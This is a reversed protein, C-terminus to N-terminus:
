LIDWTKKNVVGKKFTLIYRNAQIKFIWIVLLIIITLIIAISIILIFFTFDLEKYYMSYLGLCFSCIFISLCLYAVAQLLYQLLKLKDLFEFIVARQKQEQEETDPDIDIALLQEVSYNAFSAIVVSLTGIMAAIGRGQICIYAIYINAYDDVNHKTAGIILYGIFLGFVVSAEDFLRSKSVLNSNTASNPLNSIM